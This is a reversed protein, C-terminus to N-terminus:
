RWSIIVSKVSCGRVCSARLQTLGYLTQEQSKLHGLDKMAVIYDSVKSFLKSHSIGVTAYAWVINSLEQPEFQVLHKMAVIHNSLKFLLQLHLEDATAGAWIINFLHQPLFTSLDKM